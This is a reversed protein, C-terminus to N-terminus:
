SNFSDCSLEVDVHGTRNRRGGRKREGKRVGMEEAEEVATECEEVESGDEQNPTDADEWETAASDESEDGEGITELLNQGNAKINEVWSPFMLKAFPCSTNSHISMVREHELAAVKKLFLDPLGRIEFSAGDLIRDAMRKYARVFIDWVPKMARTRPNPRPYYPDSAHFAEAMMNVGAENLNLPRVEDFGFCWLQTQRSHNDESTRWDDKLLARWMGAPFHGINPGLKSALVFSIGRGDCKTDWHIMALTNGMVAALEETDVELAELDPFSIPLNRMNWSASMKFETQREDGLYPRVTCDDTALDLLVHKGYRM